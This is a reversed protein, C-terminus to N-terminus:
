GGAAPPLDPRGAPEGTGPESAARPDPAPASRVARVSRSIACLRRLYSAEPAAASAAAAATAAAAAVLAARVTRRQLRV